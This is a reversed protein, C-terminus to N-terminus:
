RHTMRSSFSGPMDLPVVTVYFLYRGLLESLAMLPLALVVLGAGAALGAALTGVALAILATRFWDLTLRLTGRAENTGALRLRVLNAVTGAAQVVVGIVAWRAHGTLLPGVAVATAAFRVVTLPSDWAPRGPVIYLRGSAFIGALGVGVTLPTIAPLVVTAAALGGYAGFLAVERSLWSRRLNRLAKWAHAPRGLHLLSAALAAGAAM